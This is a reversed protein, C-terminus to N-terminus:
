NIQDADLASLRDLPGWPRLDRLLGFLDRWPAFGYGLDDGRSWRSWLSLIQTLAEANPVMLYLVPESDEEVPELEEEGIFELGQIRSAARIFNQISGKVEFVLLREPALGAPDSALELRGEPSAM